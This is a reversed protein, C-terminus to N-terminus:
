FGATRPGTLCIVSGLPRLHDPISPCEPVAESERLGYMAYTAGNSAYFYGNKTPEGLPDLPLPDLYDSLKCGADFERYNCLTQISDGSDPYSGHEDRYNELALELRGLDDVRQRDREEAGASPTPVVTPGGPTPEPPVAGEVKPLFYGQVIVQGEPDHDEFSTGGPYRKQVEDLRGVYNGVFIYALNRSRDEGGDIQGDGKFETSRNTGVIDPAIFLRPEYDVSFRNDYLYVHSGEPLSAMYRAAAVFDSNYVHRAPEANDYTGFYRGLNIGAVGGMVAVVVMAALATTALGRKRGEDWVVALPLAAFGSLLPVIGLTRRYWGEEALAPGIGIAVVLILLVVYPTRRIRWLAIAGGAILLGLTVRDVLPFVGAADLGDPVPRTIVSKIYRLERDKLVDIKEFLGDARKYEETRTVSYTEYRSKYKEPNNQAFSAMPLAVLLAVGLMTAIGTVYERPSQRFMLLGIAVLAPAMAAAFISYGQYTYIGGALAAGAAAYWWRSHGRVAMFLCWLTAMEMMPWGIPILAVRSYHLHWASVALLLAGIVAVTRGFMARYALFTLSVALIGFLAYGFRLTTTSEGLVTFVGATWYFTGGPVGLAERSYVGHGEEHLGGDHLISRAELGAVAEDGQLGAPVDGILAVRPVIAVVTVALLLLLDVRNASAWIRVRRWVFSPKPVTLEM